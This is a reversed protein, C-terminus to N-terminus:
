LREVFQGGASHGLLYYALKPNHERQRLDAAIAPILDFTSWGKSVIQGTQHIGGLQYKEFPFRAADFCPAAILAGFREGLRKADDRYEEANRLVGHCVIILPGDKYGVPKYTFVEIPTYEPGAAVEIRGTGSPIETQSSVALCAILIPIM